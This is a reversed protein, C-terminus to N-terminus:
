YFLFFPDNVGPTVPWLVHQVAHNAHLVNSNPWYWADNSRLIYTLAGGGWLLALVAICALIAQIQKRGALLRQWALAALLLMPLIIPLLYRGNIAVPHGTRCFAQYEQFWLAAVYFAAALTALSLMPSHQNKLVSRGYRMMLLLSLGGFIIGAMGPLWLPGRTEFGTTPGDVAFFLRLWMGYFWDGTFILPNHTSHPSNAAYLHDRNWPGYQSCAKADLVQACGPVPTHYRALNIAYREAFLGAAVILIVLLGIRSALSLQRYGHKAAQILKPWKKYSLRLQWIVFLIIALFIPLFAYKVVSTLMGVSLLGVLRGVPLKGSERVTRVLRLCLLMNIAALPLLLNDYNIQAALLPVIPILVLALFCLNVLAQSARAQALLRRFLLLGSVFLAINLFRLIIVQATLNHTFLNILRYPFSMLWQYLYSPDRTIEGYVNAGAPQHDWFPSIHQAYLKIIGLHFDEDFAMPFRGTLAIWVAQVVLIGVIIKFARSTGLVAVVRQYRGVKAKTKM